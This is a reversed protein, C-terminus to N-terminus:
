LVPPGRLGHRPLGLGEAIRGLAQRGARCGDSIAQRGKRIDLTDITARFAPRIIMDAQALRLLAHHTQCVEFSRLMASVGNNPPHEPAGTTVDIAVVFDAGANRALDIPALDAYGGDALMRGGIRAPPLIGALAASAYLAETARGDRLAIRAGSTLDTATVIVTPDGEEIRRGLTLEDLTQRAWDVAAEGIGWGTFMHALTRQALLVRGLVGPRAGPDFVPVPLPRDQLERLAAYWDPNLARTAAVIAGMSVGVLVHPRLGAGELARLVGAHALGRAGGGCLVLGLRATM